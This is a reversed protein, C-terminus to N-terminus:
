VLSCHRTDCCRECTFEQLLMIRLVAGARLGVHPHIGLLRPLTEKDFCGPEAM